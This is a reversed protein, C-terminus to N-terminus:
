FSVRRCRRSGRGRRRRPAPAAISCRWPGNLPQTEWVKGDCGYLVLTEGFVECRAACLLLDTGATRAGIKHQDGGGRPAGCAGQCKSQAGDAGGGALTACLAVFGVPMARRSRISRMWPSSSVGPWSLRARTADPPGIASGSSP